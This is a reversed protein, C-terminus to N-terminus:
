LNQSMNVKVELKVIVIRVSQPTQKWVLSRRSVWRIIIIIIINIINESLHDDHQGLQLAASAEGDRVAQSVAHRQLGAEVVPAGLPRLVDRPQVGPQVAEM